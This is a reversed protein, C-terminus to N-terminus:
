RWTREEDPLSRSLSRGRRSVRWAYCGLIVVAAAWGGAVYGDVM